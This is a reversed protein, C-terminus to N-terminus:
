PWALIEGRVKVSPGTLDTAAVDDLFVENWYRLAIGRRREPQAVKEGLVFHRIMMEPENYGYHARIATTGSCRINLEFPVPGRETMRLQVNLPGRPRLRKGINVLFPQLEDWHGVEARYTTGGSLERRAMFTGTVEGSSDVFVACTFEEAVGSKTLYEQVIPKPTRAFYFALEEANKAIAVNRSASGDRPKIIVPYGRAGAWALTEQLSEDWICRPADIGERTLRQYTRAKDRCDRVLEVDSVLITPGGTKAWEDRVAALSVVDYDSGPFV